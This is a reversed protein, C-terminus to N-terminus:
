PINRRPEGAEPGGPAPPESHDSMLGVDKRHKAALKLLAKMEDVTQAEAEVEGDLGIRLRVKRGYKGKIFAGLATALAGVIAPGLTSVVVGFEGSLGGGGCVADHVFHRASLNVGDARAAKAFNSLDGQFEPSSLREDARAPVLVFYIELDDPSKRSEVTM